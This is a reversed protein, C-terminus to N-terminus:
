ERNQLYLRIKRAAEAMQLPDPTGQLNRMSQLQWGKLNWEAPEPYRPQLVFHVHYPSQDVWLTVYVREAGLAHVIAESILRFTPGLTTSEEATLEWLNERHAKTKVVISGIGMAGICHDALWYENEYVVGGPATAEGRVTQCAFCSLTM